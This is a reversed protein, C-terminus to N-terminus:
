VTQAALFRKFLESKDSVEDFSGSADVHGKDIVVIHDAKKIMEMDHSVMIVTRGEMAKTISNVVEKENIVDIGSTAEDMILYDPQKMLIRAVAIRQMEGGSCKADYNSIVTDFGKDKTQIFDYANALKSAEIIEDMTYDREIGYAINETITGKIMQDGQFLYGVSDRWARLNVDYLKKEGIRITGSNVDNFREILRIITSKGCGNEGVLATVKGKPIVFSVNDLIQRKGDYTFSVDEFRIDESKSSLPEGMDLDEPPTDLIDAITACAGHSLKINQWAATLMFANSMFLMYYNYLNVLQFMQMTGARVLASAVILLVIENVYQAMSGIPASFIFRIEKRVEEKYRRNNSEIGKKYEEDEMNCNKIHFISPLREAFFGTNVSIADNNIKEVQYQLKGVIITSIIAIPIGSLMILALSKYTFYMRKFSVVTGYVVSAMLIISAIAATAGVTDQTVRSVLKQSDDKSFFSMPLNIIRNWVSHRVNRTLSIAFIENMGGQIAEIATYSFTMLIFGMAFGHETIEGTMIKTQFPVLLVEMQKVGFSLATAIIIFHWPIKVKTYFRFLKKWSELGQKM